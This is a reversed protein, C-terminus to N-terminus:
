ASTLRSRAKGAWGLLEADFSKPFRDSDWDFVAYTAPRDFVAAPDVLPPGIPTSAQVLVASRTLKLACGCVKGGTTEHVVDNASTFAFCDALKGGAQDKRRPFDPLTEALAAPLGCTRLAAVIPEIAARYVSKLSRSLHEPEGLISLPVALGVTIDHGHLVAKGGTPRIVWPAPTDLRLATEPRQFCGLSVWPGDWGYVRWGMTGTEARELLAADLAM